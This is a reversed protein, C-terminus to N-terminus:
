GVLILGGISECAKCSRGRQHHAVHREFARDGLHAHGADVALPHDVGSELLDLIGVDLQHDAGGVVVDHHHLALHVLNGFIFEELGQFHGVGLDLLLAHSLHLQHFLGALLCFAFIAM